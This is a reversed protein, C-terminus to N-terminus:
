HWVQIKLGILGLFYQFICVETKKNANEVFSPIIFMWPFYTFAPYNTFQQVCTGKNM